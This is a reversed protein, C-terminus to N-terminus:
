KRTTENKMPSAESVRGDSSLSIVDYWYENGPELNNITVETLPTQFSRHTVGDRDIPGDSELHDFSVKDSYWYIRLIYSIAGTM